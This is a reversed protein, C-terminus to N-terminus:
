QVTAATEPQPLQSEAQQRLKQTLPNCIKAPLEQLGLLVANIEEISLDTLTFKM